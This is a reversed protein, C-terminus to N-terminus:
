CPSFQLRPSPLPSARIQLSVRRRHSEGTLNESCMVSKCLTARPCKEPPCNQLARWNQLSREIRGAGAAAPTAWVECFAPCLVHAALAERALKGHSSRGPGAGYLADGRAGLEGPSYACGRGARGAREEEAEPVKVKLKGWLQGRGERLVCAATPERGGGHSRYSPGGDRSERGEEAHERRGRTGAGPGGGERLSASGAQIASRAGPWRQSQEVRSDRPRRARPRAVDPAMGSTVPFFSRTYPLRHPQQFRCPSGQGVARSSLRRQTWEIPIKPPGSSKHEPFSPTRHM